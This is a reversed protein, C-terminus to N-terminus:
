PMVAGQGSVTKGVQRALEGGGDHGAGIGLPPFPAASLVGVLLGEEDSMEVDYVAQERRM